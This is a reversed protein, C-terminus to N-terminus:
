FKHERRRSPQKIYYPTPPKFGEVFQDYFTAYLATNFVPTSPEIKTSFSKNVPKINGNLGLPIFNNNM